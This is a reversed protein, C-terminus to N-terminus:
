TVIEQPVVQLSTPDYAYRLSCEGVRNSRTFRVDVEPGKQTGYDTLGIVTGTQGIFEKRHARSNRYLSKAYGATWRVQDGVHLYVGQSSTLATDLTGEDKCMSCEGRRFPITDMTRRPPYTSVDQKQGTGRCSWCSTKVTLLTKM